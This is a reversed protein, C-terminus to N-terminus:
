GGQGHGARRRLTELDKVLIRRGDRAIVGEDALRKLSRTVVVRSTASATALEWQSLIPPVALYGGAEERAWRCLHLLISCLRAEPPHFALQTSLDACRRRSEMLAELFLHATRPHTNLLEQWRNLSLHVVKSRIRAQATCVAPCPVMPQCCLGFLDDPGAVGMLLDQRPACRRLLKVYGDIILYIGTSAQGERQIMQNRVFSMERSISIVHEAEVPSLRKLIPHGTLVHEFSM